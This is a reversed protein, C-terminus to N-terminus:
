LAEERIAFTRFVFLGNDLPAEPTLRHLPIFSLPPASPHPAALPSGGAL